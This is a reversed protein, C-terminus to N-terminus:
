NGSYNSTGGGVNVSPVSFASNTNSDGTAGTGPKLKGSKLAAIVAEIAKLLKADAVKAARDLGAIAEATTLRSQSVDYVVGAEVDDDSASSPLALYDSVVNRALLDIAGGDAGITPSLRALSQLMTTSGGQGAASAAPVSTLCLAAIVAPAIWGRSRLPNTNARMLPTGKDM